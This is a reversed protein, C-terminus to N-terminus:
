ASNSENEGYNDSFLAGGCKLITVNKQYKPTKEDYKNHVIPGATLILAAKLMEYKYKFPEMHPVTSSLMLQQGEENAGHSLPVGM